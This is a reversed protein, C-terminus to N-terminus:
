HSYRSVEQVEHIPNRPLCITTPSDNMRQAKESLNRESIMQGEDAPVHVCM